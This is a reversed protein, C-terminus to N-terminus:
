SRDKASVFNRGKKKKAYPKCQKAIPDDSNALHLISTM